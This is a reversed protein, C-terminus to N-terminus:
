VTKSPHHKDEWAQISKVVLALEQGRATLSYRVVPPNPRVVSRVIIGLALFANLREQMTNPNIDYQRCLKNFRCPGQSLSHLIHLSWKQGLLDLVQSAREEVVPDLIEPQQQKITRNLPKNDTQVKAM